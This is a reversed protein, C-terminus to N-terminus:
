SKTKHPAWSERNAPIEEEIVLSDLSELPTTNYDFEGELATYALM